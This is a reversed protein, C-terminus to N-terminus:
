VDCSDTLLLAVELIGHAIVYMVKEAIQFNDAQLKGYNIPGLVCTYQFCV